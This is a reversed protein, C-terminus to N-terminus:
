GIARMLPDTSWVPQPDRIIRTRRFASPRNTSTKLSPVSRGNGGADASGWIAAGDITGM